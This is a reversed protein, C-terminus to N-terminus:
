WAGCVGCWASGGLWWEGRVVFVVGLVVVGGM